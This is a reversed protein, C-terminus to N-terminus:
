RAGGKSAMQKAYAIRRSQEYSLFVADPETAVNSLGKPWVGFKGRYLGKALKGSKARRRDLCLAMSWFKQKDAM